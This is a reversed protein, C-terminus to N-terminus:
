GKPEYPTAFHARSHPRLAPLQISGGWLYPLTLFTEYKSSVFLLKSRCGHTSWDSLQGVWLNGTRMKAYGRTTGNGTAASFSLASVGALSYWGNTEKQHCCPTTTVTNPTDDFNSYTPGTLVAIPSWRRCAFWRLMEGLWGPWSLRRDKAPSSILVLWLTTITQPQPTCAHITWKLQPYVHPHCTFSHSGENIRAM